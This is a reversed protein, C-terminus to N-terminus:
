VGRQDNSIEEDQEKLAGKEQYKRLFDMEKVLETAKIQYPCDSFDMNKLKKSM